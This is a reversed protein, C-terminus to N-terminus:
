CQFVSFEFVVIGRRKFATVLLQVYVKLEKMGVLAIGLDIWQFSLITELNLYNEKTYKTFYTHDIKQKLQEYSNMHVRAHVEPWNRHELPSHTEEEEWHVSPLLEAPSSVILHHYCMVRLVPFM